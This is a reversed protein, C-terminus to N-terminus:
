HAHLVICLMFHYYNNKPYAPVWHITENHYFYRFTYLINPFRNNFVDNNKPKRIAAVEDFHCFIYMNQLIHWIKVKYQAFIMNVYKIIIIDWSLWKWKCTIAWTHRRNIKVACYCAFSIGSKAKNWLGPLRNKNRSIIGGRFLLPAITQMCLFGNVPGSFFVIDQIENPKTNAQTFFTSTLVHSM